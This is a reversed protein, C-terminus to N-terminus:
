HSDICRSKRAGATTFDVACHPCVHGPRNTRRKEVARQDRGRARPQQQDRAHDSLSSDRHLAHLQLSVNDPNRESFANLDFLFSLATNIIVPPVSINHALDVGELNQFSLADDWIVTSRPQQLMTQERGRWVPRQLSATEGDPPVTVVGNQFFRPAPPPSHSNRQDQAATFNSPVWLNSAYSVALVHDLHEHRALLSHDM